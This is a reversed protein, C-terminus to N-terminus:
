WSTSIAPQSILLLGIVLKAAPETMWGPSVNKIQRFMSGVLFPPSAHSAFDDNPPNPFPESVILRRLLESSTISLTAYVFVLESVPWDVCTM